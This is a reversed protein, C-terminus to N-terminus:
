TLRQQAWQADERLTKRTKGLPHKIRYRWGVLAAIAGVVLVAGGVVLAAAWAPMVEALALVLAALFLPLTILAALAAAALGGVMKMESKFEMRLEAKALDLEKKMLEKAEEALRGVLEGTSATALDNERATSQEEHM